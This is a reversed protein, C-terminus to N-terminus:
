GLGRDGADDITIFTPDGAASRGSFPAEGAFLAEAGLAPESVFAVFGEDLAGDADGVFELAGDVGALAVDGVVRRLRGTFDLDAGLVLDEIARRHDMAVEAQGVADVDVLELQDFM